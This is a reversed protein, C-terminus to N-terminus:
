NTNQAKTGHIGLAHEFRVYFAKLMKNQETWGELEVRFGLSNRLDGFLQTIGEKSWQQEAPLANNQTGQMHIGFVSTHMHLELMLADQKQMGYTADNWADLVFSPSNVPPFVVAKSEGVEVVGDNNLDVRDSFDPQKLLNAAGEESLVTTQIRQAISNGRQLLALETPELEQLVQKHTKNSTQMTKEAEALLSAFSRIEQESLNRSKLHNISTQSLHIKTLM